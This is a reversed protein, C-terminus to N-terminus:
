PVNYEWYAREAGMTPDLKMLDPNPPRNFIHYAVFLSGTFATVAIAVGIRFRWKEERTMGTSSTTMANDKRKKREQEQLGSHPLARMTTETAPVGIGRVIDLEGTSRSPIVSSHRHLIAIHDIGLMALNINVGGSFYKRPMPKKRAADIDEKIYNFVGKKYAQLYQQFIKDKDTPDNANVGVKVKSQNGYIQTLLADKLAMKYWSALIMSYFMQRLSAFNKGQNVEEEIAPLIIDKVIQSSLTAAKTDQHKEKAMYDEELMVKLHAGVIYAANAREFVDAKDAVIWVKNFTNVPIETTGYLQQAKAYVKDWFTKGLDKEPYILSATLQKLIYDQALMDQGMQTQGLNDAIMRDKEYPSLNVWLDKEPITMSALFYKILRNGEEKLAPDGATLKSDGTDVIFDFQFPNEPHVKLGKILVPQFAPSLNVMTGPAPLGLAASAKPVPIVLTFLFSAIIWFCLLRRLFM